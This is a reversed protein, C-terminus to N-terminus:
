KSESFLSRILEEAMAAHGTDSPHCSDGKPLPVLWDGQGYNDGGVILHEMWIKHQDIVPIDAEQAVCIMTNAYDDVSSTNVEGHDHWTPTMFIIDANPHNKRILEILEWLDEAYKEPPVYKSADKILSDNIGASIIFLDATRSDIVKGIYDDRRNLLRRVTNGGIGSRIVTIKGGTETGNQVSIPEGYTALPMLASNEHKHRKGDYRIVTKQPFHEGLRRAFVATYTNEASTSRFGETISDGVSFITYENSNQIKERIISFKNKLTNM